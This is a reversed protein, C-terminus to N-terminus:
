GHYTHGTGAYLPLQTNWYNLFAADNRGTVIWVVEAIAFAPNLAPERAIVWRQRPDRITFVTHLVEITPGARSSQARADTGVLLSAAAQQWVANATEGELVRIM